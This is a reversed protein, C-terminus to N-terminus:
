VLIEEKIELNFLDHLANILTEAEGRKCAAKLQMVLQKLIKQMMNGSILDLTEREVVNLKKSARALEEQRIQDLALKLKQIVPLMVPQDALNDFDVIAESMIQVNPM